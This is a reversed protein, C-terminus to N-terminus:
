RSFNSNKIKKIKIKKSYKIKNNKIISKYVLEYHVEPLHETEYVNSNSNYM